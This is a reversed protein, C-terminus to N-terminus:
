RSYWAVLRSLEGGRSLIGRALRQRFSALVRNFGVHYDVVTLANAVAQERPLDRWMRALFLVVPFTLALAEFGEWAPLGFSPPGCFQLSSVKITYYRELVEDAVPPLPGRPRETDEFTSEPLAAHLRPVPGRGRAFRVAAHLRASWGRAGVGRNPGSDKRSYLAVAQRFLIRGVWGPAPVAAPSTPTDAEAASQLLRLLEPLRDEGVQDLRARRLDRVLILCKRLRREMADRRDRLVALLVDVLRLFAPWPLRRSEDLRPPRTLAGDPQPRLNEREALQAAFALLAPQHEPMARGKNAAASPCAYRLGVRWHDGAPIPVFPYLRCPLPKADYGFREHIRCRGQESLFVCGDDDPRQTLAVQRRWPPGYRTFPNLGGLEAPDWGQAEIRRREDESLTVRYEKCCTGTVHCDWNQVMPLHKIPFAM